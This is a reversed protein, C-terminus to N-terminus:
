IDMVGCCVGVYMKGKAPGWGAISLRHTGLAMPGNQLGETIIDTVSLRVNM